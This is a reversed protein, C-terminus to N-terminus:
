WNAEPATSQATVSLARVLWSSTPTAAIRAATSQPSGPAAAEAGFSVALSRQLAHWPLSWLEFIDNM